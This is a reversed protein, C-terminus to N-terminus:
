ISVIRTSGDKEVMTGSCGPKLEKDTEYFNIEMAIGNQPVAVEVELNFTTPDGDATLTINQNSKIKCLPFVLQMREDIGTDRNRIYTEGVIKYMGPFDGSTVHITKAKLPAEKTSITLSKKFYIEGQHFWYDDDYPTMTKPNVYAWLSRSQNAKKCCPICGSAHNTYAESEEFNYDKGVADDVTLNRGKKKNVEEVSAPLTINAVKNVNTASFDYFTTTDGPNQIAKILGLKNALEQIQVSSIIDTAVTVISDEFEGKTLSISLGNSDVVADIWTDTGTLKYRYAAGENLVITYTEDDPNVVNYTVFWSLPANELGDVIKKPGISYVDNEYKTIIYYSLANISDFRVWLDIGRFQETDIQPMEVWYQDADAHDPTTDGIQRELDWDVNKKGLYAKISGDRCVRIKLYPYETFNDLIALAEKDAECVYEHTMNAEAQKHYIIKARPGEDNYKDYGRLYIIEYKFSESPQNIGITQKRKIPYVKGYISFFRDPVVAISKVSTEIEVRWKYPHGKVYGFGHVDTGDLVASHELYVDEDNWDKLLQEDGDRPLLNSVVGNAMDNRPYFAKEM